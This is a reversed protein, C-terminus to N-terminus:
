KWVFAGFHWMLVMWVYESEDIGPLQWAMGLPERHIYKRHWVSLIDMQYIFEFRAQMLESMVKLREPGQVLM